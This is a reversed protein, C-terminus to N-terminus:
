QDCLQMFFAGFPKELVFVAWLDLEPVRRVMIWAILPVHFILWGKKVPNTSKSGLVFYCSQYNLSFLGRDMQLDALIFAQSIELFLITTIWRILAAPVQELAKRFLLLFFFLFKKERQYERCLVSHTWLAIHNDVKLEQNVKKLGYKLGTVMDSDNGSFDTM